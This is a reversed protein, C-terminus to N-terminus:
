PQIIDRPMWYRRGIQKSWEGVGVIDPPVVVRVDVKWSLVDVNNSGWFERLRLWVVDM